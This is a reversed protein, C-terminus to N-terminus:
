VEAAAIAVLMGVGEVEDEEGFALFEDGVEAMAQLDADTLAPRLPQVYYCDGLQKAHRTAAQLDTYPGYVPREGESTMDCVIIWQSM